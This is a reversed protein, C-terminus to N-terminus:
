PGEVETAEYRLGSIPQGESDRPPDIGLLRAVSAALDLARVEGLKAGRPVGRGLAYFIAGMDPQDPTYGHTGHAGVLWGLRRQAWSLRSFTYPPRTLVVIDGSRRPHHGRLGAPMDESAYAEINEMRALVELARGRQRRDKLLLYATGGGNFARVGIGERRLVGVLDISRTAGAMGHDSVVFLTTNSWASRKDLGALLRVLQQDQRALQRAVERDEPGRRHGVSDAGHWWSLILRPRKEDPLDLWALTQDVKKSEPVRGDFRSKRYSAGVGNWDTQSGVWFFVAARIGQREAAVWLPEAELWSADNSYDFRGRERDQFRNAVIGHRDVYTGTALTVHNPFTSAPFVPVLRSARAGEREMRELGPLSTREPYDHRTGDWSLVIVVPDSGLGSLPLLWALLVLAWTYAPLRSRPQAVRTWLHIGFAHRVHERDGSRVRRPTGPKLEIKLDEAAM